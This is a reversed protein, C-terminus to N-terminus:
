VQTDALTQRPWDLGGGVGDARKASLVSRFHGSPPASELVSCDSDTGPRKRTRRCPRRYLFARGPADSTSGSPLLRSVPSEGDGCPLNSCCEAEPLTSLHLGRGVEPSDTPTGISRHNPVFPDLSSNPGWYAFHNLSVPSDPAPDRYDLSFSSEQPYHHQGVALGDM